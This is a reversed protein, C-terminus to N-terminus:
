SFPWSEVSQSRCFKCAAHHVIPQTQARPKQYAIVRVSLSVCSSHTVLHSCLPRSSPDILLLVDKGGGNECDWGDASATGRIASLLRVLFALWTRPFTRPLIGAQGSDLETRREMEVPIRRELSAISICCIYVCCVTATLCVLSFMEPDMDVGVSPSSRLLGANFPAPKGGSQGIMVSSKFPTIVSPLNSRRAAHGVEISARIKTTRSMSLSSSM